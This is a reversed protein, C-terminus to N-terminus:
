PSRDETDSGWLANHWYKITTSPHWPFPIESDRSFLSGSLWTERDSEAVEFCVLPFWSSPVRKLHLTVKAETKISSFSFSAAYLSHLCDMLLISWYFPSVHKISHRPPKIACTWMGFEVSGQIRVSRVDKVMEWRLYNWVGRFVMCLHMLAWGM